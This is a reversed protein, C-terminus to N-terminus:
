FKFGSEWKWKRFETVKDRADTITELAGCGCWEYLTTRDEPDTISDMQRNRTYHRTTWRGRRDKSRTLDLIEQPGQGLDQSYEFEETTTDPYTVKTKRDLDDYDTTVTYSDSDTVTRVRKASDYAFSTVASTGNFPPSSISALYGDPVSGGYSYTTTELKSNQVTEVQGRSNYTYTTTNGAVDTSTLPRHTSNYTYGALKDVPVADPDTSSGTPNRRYVTLSGFGLPIQAGCCIICDFL